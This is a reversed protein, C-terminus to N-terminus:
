RRVMVQHGFALPLSRGLESCLARYFPPNLLHRQVMEQVVQVEQLQCEVRLSDYTNIGCRAALHREEIEQLICAQASLMINAATSQVPMNCIHNLYTEDVANDSGIFWRTQGILPLVLYGKRKAQAILENQWQYLVEHERYYEAIIAEGVELPLAFGVDRECTEQFKFGGGRFLVLFNLTKGLHRFLGTFLPDTLGRGQIWGELQDCTIPGRPTLIQPTRAIQLMELLHLAVTQATETHQDRYPVTEYIPMLTPDGSLLTAVVLEIRNYDWYLLVGKPWRASVCANVPSPFTQAGPDQCTIRCQNTGGEQDSDDAEQSPVPFWSPYAIGDILTSSTRWVGGRKRGFLLPRTYSTVIKHHTKFTRLLTLAKHLDSEPDLTNLLINVNKKGTSIDRTNKTRELDKPGLGSVQAARDVLDQIAGKSGKGYLVLGHHALARNATLSIEICEKFQVTALQDRDMAFGHEGLYICTWLLDSYWAMCFPSLKPTDPFDQRIRDFLIDATRLSTYADLASYNLFGPDTTSPYRKFGEQTQDYKAVQFLVALSKLSREPRLECQLYNLVAVDLLRVRHDLYHRYSSDCYRLFKIDFPLNLGVISTAGQSNHIDRLWHRLVSRHAPNDWYFLGVKIEDDEHWAVSVIEILKDRPVGDHTVCKVPHFATQDPRNAIIGYTEIDLSVLPPLPNPPGPAFQYSTTRRPPPASGDLYSELLTLHDCVAVVDSPSRGETLRAPHYTTFVPFPEIVLDDPLSDILAQLRERRGKATKTKGKIGELFARLAAPDAWEHLSAYNGQRAFAPRLTTGWISQTAHSGCCLVIVEQYHAQLAALDEMLYRYCAKIQTKNLKAESPPRCRCTNTLYIDAKEHLDIGQIYVTRLYRGATWIFSKGAHDEHHGPAEGVVLVARAHGTPQYPPDAARTPIGPSLCGEGLSCRRCEPHAPFEIM